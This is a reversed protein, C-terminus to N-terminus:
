HHHGGGTKLMPNHPATNYPTMGHGQMVPMSGHNPYPSHQNLAPTNHNIYLQAPAVYPTRNMGLQHNHHQNVVPYNTRYGQAYPMGQGGAYNGNGYFKKAQGPPVWLGMKKAQGPPLGGTSPNAWGHKSFSAPAGLISVIAVVPLLNKFNM